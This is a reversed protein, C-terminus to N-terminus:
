CMPESVILDDGFCDNLDDTIWNTGSHREGILTISTVGTAKGGNANSPADVETEEDSAEYEDMANAVFPAQEYASLIRRRISSSVEANQGVGYRLLAVLATVTAALM